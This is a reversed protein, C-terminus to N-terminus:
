KEKPYNVVEEATPALLRFEANQQIFVFNELKRGVARFSFYIMEKEIKKTKTKDSFLNYGSGGGRKIM